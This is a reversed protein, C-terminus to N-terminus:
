RWWNRELISIREPLHIWLGTSNALGPSDCPNLQTNLTITWQNIKHTVKVPGHPAWINQCVNNQTNQSPTKSSTLVYMPLASHGGYCSHAEDWWSFAQQRGTARDNRSQSGMSQLMGPKGTRWWRRSNAWSMDVSETIGDLWRMRQWGRRRRGEIKGLILTKELSDNRWILHGFYQLKLKLMLGELSYEPNIEKLISQNSRRPTRVPVFVQDERLNSLFGGVQSVNM